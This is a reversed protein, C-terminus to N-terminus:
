ATADGTAYFYDDGSSQALLTPDGGAVNPVQSGRRALDLYRDESDPPLPANELAQAALAHFVKQDGV